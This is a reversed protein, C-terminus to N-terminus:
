RIFPQLAVRALRAAPAIVTSKLARSLHFEIGLGLAFAEGHWVGYLGGVEQSYGRSICVRVIEGRGM